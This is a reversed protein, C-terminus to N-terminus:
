FLKNHNPAGKNFKPDHPFTREIDKEIEFDCASKKKSLLNFYGKKTLM